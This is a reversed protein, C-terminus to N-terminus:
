NPAASDLQPADTEPRSRRRRPKDEGSGMSCSGDYFAGEDIKLKPTRVDGTVRGSALIELSRSAVIDGVVEGAIVITEAALNGIVRGKAGVEVDVADSIDGEFAGEIRLSGKVVLSGHFFADESILTMGERADGRGGKEGFM